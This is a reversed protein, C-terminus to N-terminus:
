CCRGFRLPQTAVFSPFAVFKRAVTEELGFYPKPSSPIEFGAEALTKVGKIAELTRAYIPTTYSLDTVENPPGASQCIEHDLIVAVNEKEFM